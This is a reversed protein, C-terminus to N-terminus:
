KQEQKQINTAEKIKKTTGFVASENKVQETQRNL